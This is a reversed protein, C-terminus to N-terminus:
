KKFGFLKGFFNGVKQFFGQNKTNNAQIIVNSAKVDSGSIDGQVLVIDNEKIDQVAVSEGKKKLTSSALDITYSVDKKNKIVISTGGVSTVTGLVVPKGSGEGFMESVKWGSLDAVHIRTAVIKNDIFAGEVMIKSGIKVSSIKVEEKEEYFTTKSADVTYSIKKNGDKDKPNVYTSEIVINTGDISTVTGMTMPRNNGLPGSKLNNKKMMQNQNQPNQMRGVGDQVEKPGGFAYIYSASLGFM